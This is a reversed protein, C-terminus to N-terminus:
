GNILRYVDILKGSTNRGYISYWSASFKNMVDTYKYNVNKSKVAIYTSAAVATSISTGAANTETGGPLKVSMSGPAFFDILKPDFNSYIAIYDGEASAGVSVVEPICSPWNVRSYDRDNGASNFVPIDMALLNKVLSQTAPTYPCYNQGMLLTHHGQSLSVAQINFKDKNKLVWDLALTIARETMTQRQGNQTSGIIRIFVIRVNPNTKIAAYTMQTGHDFGNKTIFATSLGASGPGEMVTQGNPCSAWEIVCAEYIIKDKFEPLSTDIATDLIALSPPLVTQNKLAANASVPFALIAAIFATLLKKNM